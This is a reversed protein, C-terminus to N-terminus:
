TQKAFYAGIVDEELFVNLEKALNLCEEVNSSPPLTVEAGNHKEKLKNQYANFSISLAQYFPEWDNQIRQRLEEQRAEQETRHSEISEVQYELQSVVDERQNIAQDLDALRQSLEAKANELGQIESESAELHQRALEQEENVDHEYRQMDEENM